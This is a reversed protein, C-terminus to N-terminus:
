FTTTCNWCSESEGCPVLKTDVVGFHCVTCKVRKAGPPSTGLMQTLQTVLNGPSVRVHHTMAPPPRKQAMQAVALTNQPGVVEANGGVGTGKM